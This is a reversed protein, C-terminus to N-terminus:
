RAPPTGGVIRLHRARRDPTGRRDDPPADVAPPAEPADRRDAASHRRETRGDWPPGSRPLTAAFESGEGLASAVLELRGGMAEVLSRSIALGLGAGGAERALSADGQVFPRFIPERLAEPIGCGTDTVAFRVVGAADPPEAAPETVALTVRGGRPTFKIANGLLNVLVQRLKDADARVRCGPPPVGLALALGRAEALPAVLPEVTQLLEGVELDAIAYTMRGTELRAYGLVDNVLTLLHRENQRIREVVDRQLPSMDGYLGLALLDAYGAIANLPTRLEHSMVALFESKSRNAAEAEARAEHEVTVDTNTGVWRVVTGAADRLPRARTLFWRWRGDAARMPFIEEWPEGTRRARAFSATLRRVHDPHQCARWGDGSLAVEAPIGTVEEWRRNFWVLRGHGDAMWALHPIHDALARFDLERERLAEQHARTATLDEVVVVLAALRRDPARAASTSARVWVPAADARLLRLELSRLTTHGEGVAGRASADRARDDPHVLEAWPRGDLAASPTDLLRALAANVQRCRGEGDLTAIGVPAWHVVSDLAAPVLPIWSPVEGLSSGIPAAPSARLM